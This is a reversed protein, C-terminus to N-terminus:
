FYTVAAKVDLREKELYFNVKVSVEITDEDSSAYVGLQIWTSIAALLSEDLAGGGSAAHAEIAGPKLEVEFRDEFTRNRVALGEEIYSSAGIVKGIGLFLEKANAVYFEVFKQAANRRSALKIMDSSM